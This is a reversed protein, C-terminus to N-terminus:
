QTIIVTFDNDAYDHYIQYNLKLSQLVKEVEVPDYAYIFPDDFYGKAKKLLTVGLARKTYTLFFLLFQKFFQINDKKTFNLAGNCVIYDFLSYKLKFFDNLVFQHTPFRKAAFKIFEEMFDVGLYKSPEQKISKLYELLDGRGCGLDLLTKHSFNGMRSLSRFRVKQNNKSNWHLSRVDQLGFSDIAQKYFNKHADQGYIDLKEM